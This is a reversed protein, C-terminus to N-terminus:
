NQDSKKTKDHAVSGVCPTSGIFSASSGPNVSKILQLIKSNLYISKGNPGFVYASGDTNVHVQEADAVAAVECNNNEQANSISALLGLSISVWGLKKKMFEGNTIVM